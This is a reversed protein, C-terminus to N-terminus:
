RDVMLASLAYVSDSLITQRMKLSQLLIYATTWPTQKSPAQFHRSKPQKKQRTRGTVRSTDRPERRAQVFFYRADGASSRPGICGFDNRNKEVISHSRVDITHRSRGLFDRTQKNYTCCLALAKGLTRWVACQDLPSSM